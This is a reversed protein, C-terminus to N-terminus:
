LGIVGVGIAIAAHRFHHELSVFRGHCAGLHRERKSRAVEFGHNAFPQSVELEPVELHRLRREISRERDLRVHRFEQGVASPEMQQESAPRLRFGIKVGRDRELGRQFQCPPPFRLDVHERASHRLRHDGAVLHELLIRSGFDAESQQAGTESSQSFNGGCDLM